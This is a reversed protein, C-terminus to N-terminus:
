HCPVTGATARGGIQFLTRDCTEDLMNLFALQDLLANTGNSGFTVSNLM